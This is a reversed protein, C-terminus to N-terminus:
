RAFDGDCRTVVHHAFKDACFIVPLWTPDPFLEQWAGHQSLQTTAAWAVEVVVSAVEFALQMQMVLAQQGTATLHEKLESMCVTLPM